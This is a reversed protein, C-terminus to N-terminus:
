KLKKNKQPTLFSNIKLLQSKNASILKSNISKILRNNSKEKSKYRKRCSEDVKRKWEELLQVKKSKQTM